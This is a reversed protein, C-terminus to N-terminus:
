VRSTENVCNSTRPFRSYREVRTHSPEFVDSRWRVGEQTFAVKGYTASEHAAADIAAMRRAFWDRDVIGTAAADWLSIYDTFGEHFWAIADNGEIWGPSGLWYHFLEHAV